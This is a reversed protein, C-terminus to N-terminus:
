LEEMLGLIIVSFFHDRTIVPLFTNGSLDPFIWTKDFISSGVQQREWLPVQLAITFYKDSITGSFFNELPKSPLIKM